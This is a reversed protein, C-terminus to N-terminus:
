VEFRRQLMYAQQTERSNAIGTMGHRRKAGKLRRPRLGLHGPDDAFEFGLQHSRNERFDLKDGEVFACSELFQPPQASDQARPAEVQQEVHLQRKARAQDRAQYGGRDLETEIARTRALQLPPEGIRADRGRSALM